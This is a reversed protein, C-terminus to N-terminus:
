FYYRIGTGGTIIATTSPFISIGPAIEVFVGISPEKPKWEAGVPIRVGLGFSGSTKGLYGDNNGRDSTTIAALGGVGFYPVLYDLFENKQRFIGPYHYLYDGYFVFYSNINFGLGGDFAVQKDRWYKGTVATPYGLILGAGFENSAYLRHCSLLLGFVIVLKLIKM